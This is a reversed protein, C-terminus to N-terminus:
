QRSGDMDFAGFAAVRKGDLNEVDLKSGVPAPVDLAGQGPGQGLIKREVAECVNRDVGVAADGGQRPSGFDLQPGEESDHAHRWRGFPALAARDLWAGEAAVDVVLM